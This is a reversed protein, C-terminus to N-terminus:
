INYMNYKITGEKIAEDLEEIGQKYGLADSWAFNRCRAQWLDHELYDVENSTNYIFDGDWESNELTGAKYKRWRENWVDSLKKALKYLDTCQKLKVQYEHYLQYSEEDHYYYNDSQQNSQTQVPEPANVKPTPTTQDGNKRNGQANNNGNGGDSNNNNKDTSTQTIHQSSQLQQPNENSNNDNNSNNNSNNNSGQTVPNNENTTKVGSEYEGLLAKIKDYYKKYMAKQAPTSKANVKKELYEVFYMLTGSSRARQSYYFEYRIDSIKFTNYAHYESGTGALAGLNRMIYMLFDETLQTEIISEKLKSVDVEDISNYRIDSVMSTGPSSGITAEAATAVAAAQQPDTIQERSVSSQSLENVAEQASQGETLQSEDDLYNVNDTDDAGEDYLSKCRTDNCKTFNIRGMGINDQIFDFNKYRGRIMLKENFWSMDYNTVYFELKITRYKGETQPCLAVVVSNNISKSLQMHFQQTTDKIQLDLTPVGWHSKISFAFINEDELVVSNIYVVPVNKATYKLNDDDTEKTPLEKGDSKPAHLMRVISKSPNRSDHYVVPDLPNIPSQLGSGLMDNENESHFVQGDAFVVWHRFGEENAVPTLDGMNEGQVGPTEVAGPENDMDGFVQEEVPADGIQEINSKDYMQSITVAQSTIPTPMTVGPFLTNYDPAFMISPNNITGFMTEIVNDNGTGVDWFKKTRM